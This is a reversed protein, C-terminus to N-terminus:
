ILIGRCHDIEHQIVQATLGSFDATMKEMDINMFSVTITRWRKTRRTGSLSLCGEEAEYSGSGHIIKPNVMILPVFGTMVAIINKREGIMNAAMGACVSANAMLTDKLDEMVQRDNRDADSSKQALFMTDRVIQRIM